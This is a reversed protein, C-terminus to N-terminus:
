DDYHEIEWESVINKFGILVWDYWTEEANALFEEIEEIQSVSLDNISDVDFWAEVEERAWDTLTSEINDCWKHIKPVDFKELQSQTM